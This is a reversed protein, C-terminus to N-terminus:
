RWENKYHLSLILFGSPKRERHLPARSLPDPSSRVAHRRSQGSAARSVSYRLPLCSTRNPLRLLTGARSIMGHDSRSSAVQPTAGVRRCLFAAISPFTVGHAADRAGSHVIMLIHISRAGDTASSHQWEPVPARAGVCKSEICSNFGRPKIARGALLSLGHTSM